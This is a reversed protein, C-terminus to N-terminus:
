CYDKDDLIFREVTFIEQLFFFKLLSIRVCICLQHLLLASTSPNSYVHASTNKKLQAATNKLLCVKFQAATNKVCNTSFSSRSLM